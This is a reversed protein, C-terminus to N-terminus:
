SARQVRRYVGGEHIQTPGPRRREPIKRERRAYVGKRLKYLRGSPTSFITERRDSALFDQLFNTVHKMASLLDYGEEMLLNVLNGAVSPEDEDIRM